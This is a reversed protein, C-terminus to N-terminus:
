RRRLGAGGFPEARADFNITIREPFRLNVRRSQFRTMMVVTARDLKRVIQLFFTFFCVRIFLSSSFLFPPRRVNRPLPSPYVHKLPEALRSHYTAYFFFFQEFYRERTYVDSLYADRLPRSFRPRRPLTRPSQHHPTPDLPPSPVAPPIHAGSTTKQGTRRAFAFQKNIQWEHGPFHM